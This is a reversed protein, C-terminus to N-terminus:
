GGLIAVVEALDDGDRNTVFSFPEVLIKSLIAVVQRPDDGDQM